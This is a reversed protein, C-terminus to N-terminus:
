LSPFNLSSPADMLEVVSQSGTDATCHLNHVKPKPNPSMHVQALKGMEKPADM